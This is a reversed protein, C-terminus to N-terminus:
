QTGEVYWEKELYVTAGGHLHGRYLYLWTHNNSLMMATLMQINDWLTKIQLELGEIEAEEFMTAKKLSKLSNVQIELARREAKQINVYSELDIQKYGSERMQSVEEKLEANTWKRRPDNLHSEMTKCAEEDSRDSDNKIPWYIYGEEEQYDSGEIVVKYKRRAQQRNIQNDLTNQTM